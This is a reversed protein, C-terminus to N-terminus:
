ARADLRDQLIVCAAYVASATAAPAVKRFINHAHREDVIARVTGYVECRSVKRPIRTMTSAFRILSREQDNTPEFKM